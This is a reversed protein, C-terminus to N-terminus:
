KEPKPAVPPQQKQLKEQMKEQQKQLAIMKKIAKAEGQPKNFLEPNVTFMKEWCGPVNSKEGCICNRWTEGTQKDVLITLMSPGSIVEYRNSKPQLFMGFLILLALVILINEKMLVEKKSDTINYYSIYFNKLINYM